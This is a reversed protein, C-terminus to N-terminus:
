VGPGRRHPVPFALAAGVALGVLHGVLSVGPLISYGLGAALAALLVIRVRIPSEDRFVLVLAAALLGFMGGSAGVSVGAAPWLQHKLLIGAGSAVSASLFVLLIWRPGSRREAPPAAVLLLVTNLLLHVPNSHLFGFTLLRWYQRHLGGSDPLAGLRLLRSDNGLSATALEALFMAGILAFIAATGAYRPSRHVTRSSV